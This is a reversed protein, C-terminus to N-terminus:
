FYLFDGWSLLSPEFFSFWLGRKDQSQSSNTKRRKSLGTLQSIRAYRKWRVLWPQADTPDLATIDESQQPNSKIRNESPHPPSECFVEFRRGSEHCEGGSLSCLVREPSFRKLPVGSQEPSLSDFNFSHRDAKRWRKGTKVSADFVRRIAENSM